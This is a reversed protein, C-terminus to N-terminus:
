KKEEKTGKSKKLAYYIIFGVGFLVLFSGFSEGLEGIGLKFM